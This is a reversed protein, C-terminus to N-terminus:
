LNLFDLSIENNDHWFIAVESDCDIKKCRFKKKILTMAKKMKGHPDSKTTLSIWNFNYCGDHINNIFVFSKCLKAIRQLKKNILKVTKNKMLEKKNFCAEM